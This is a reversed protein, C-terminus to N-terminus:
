HRHLTIMVKAPSVQENLQVKSDRNIEDVLMSAVSKM